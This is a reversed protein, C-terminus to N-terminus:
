DELRLRRRLNALYRYSAVLPRSLGALHVAHTARNRREIREVLDLNVILHRHARAFHAPPLLEEWAKMTKRVFLKEGTALVAETYNECSTVTRIDAIVVFRETARDLRLLIRDTAAFPPPAPPGDLRALAAAFRAASVPKMLYDLANVEFARLAHRDYATVFIVRAEPRVHPVLDFGSGGILQIDLLVLRYDASTLLATATAFTDAEGVVRYRPHQALLWRLEARAGPEDDIILTPVTM